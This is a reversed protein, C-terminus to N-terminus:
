HFAPIKKLPLKKTLSKQQQPSFYHTLGFFGSPNLPNVACLSDCYTKDNYSMRHYSTAIKSSIIYNSSDNKRKM